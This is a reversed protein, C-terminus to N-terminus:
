KKLIESTTANKRRLQEKKFDKKRLLCQWSLCAFIPPSQQNDILADYQCAGQEVCNEEVSM